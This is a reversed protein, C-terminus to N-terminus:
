ALGHPSPQPEADTVNPSQTRLRDIRASRCTQLVAGGAVSTFLPEHSPPVGRRYIATQNPPNRSIRASQRPQPATGYAAQQAGACPSRAQTARGHRERGHCCPRGHGIAASAAATGDVTEVIGIAGASRAGVASAVNAAATAAGAQAAPCATQAAATGGATRAPQIRSIGAALAGCARGTAATAATGMAADTCRNGLPNFCPPVPPRPPCATPAPPPPPPPAPPQPATIVPM